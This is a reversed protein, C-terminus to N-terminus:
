STINSVIFARSGYGYEFAERFEINPNQVQFDQFASYEGRHKSGKYFIYDDFLIITGEQLVTRIFNLALATPEKLDCDIMIVRAKEIQYDNPTKNKLTEEFFGKIIQYKQGKSCKKINNLIKEENVSFTDDNFMPHEDEAKVSGFGKFSDFGFFNCNSKGFLKDINKNVKMAYNFSSGTFIGFELYSGFTKDHATIFMAKKIALYKSVTFELYAPIKSVITAIFNQIFLFKKLFKLLSM